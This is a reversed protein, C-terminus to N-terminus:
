NKICKVSYGDYKASLSAPQIQPLMDQVYMAMSATGDNNELYYAEVNWKMFSGDKSRMGSIIEEKSVPMKEM